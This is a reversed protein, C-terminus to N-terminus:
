NGTAQTVAFYNGDDSLAVATSTAGIPHFFPSPSISYKVKSQKMVLVVKSGELDDETYTVAESKGSTLHKPVAVSTPFSVGFDKSIYLMSGGDGLVGWVQGNFPSTFVPYASPFPFSERAGFTLTATSFRVISKDGLLCLQTDNVLIMRNYEKYDPSQWPKILKAGLVPVVDVRSNRFTGTINFVLVSYQYPEASDVPKEQDPYIKSGYLMISSLDRSAVIREAYFDGSAPNVCQFSGICGVYIYGDPSIYLDLLAPYITGPDGYYDTYLIIVQRPCSLFITCNFTCYPHILVKLRKM